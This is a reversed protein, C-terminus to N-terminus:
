CASSQLFGYEEAVFLPSKNQCAFLKVNAGADLLIKVINANGVSCVQSLPTWKNNNFFDITAGRQILLKLIEPKYHRSAYM